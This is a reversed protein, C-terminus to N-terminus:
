LIAIVLLESNAITPLDPLTYENVIYENGVCHSYLNDKHIYRNEFNQDLVTLIHQYSSQNAM